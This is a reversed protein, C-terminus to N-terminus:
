MKMTNLIDVRKNNLIQKRTKIPTRKTVVVPTRKTVTSTDKQTHNTKNYVYKYVPKGYKYVTGECRSIYGKAILLGIARVIHRRSLKTFKEFITLSIEAEKRSWGYTQRFITLLIKLEAGGLGSSIINELLENAIPTYGNELQPNGKKM